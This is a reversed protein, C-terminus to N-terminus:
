WSRSLYKGSAHYYIMFAIGDLQAVCRVSFGYARDFYYAPYLEGSDAYLNYANSSSRSTASWYLLYTTTRRCEDSWLHGARTFYLPHTSLKYWGNTQYGVNIIDGSGTDTGDAVGAADIIELRFDAGIIM